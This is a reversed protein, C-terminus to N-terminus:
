HRSIVNRASVSLAIIRLRRCTKSLAPRVGKGRKGRLAANLSPVSRQPVANHQPTIEDQLSAPRLDRRGSAVQIPPHVDIRGVLGRMGLGEGGPTGPSFSALSENTGPEGRGPIGPLPAPPSPNTLRTLGTHRCTNRILLLELLPPPLPGGYFHLSPFLPQKTVCRLSPGQPGETRRM